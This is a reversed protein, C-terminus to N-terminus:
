YYFFFFTKKLDNYSHLQFSQIASTTAKVFCGECVLLFVEELRAKFGEDWILSVLLQPESSRHAKSSVAVRWWASGSCHEKERAVGPWDQFFRWCFQEAEYWTLTLPFCCSASFLSSSLAENHPAISLKNGLMNHLDTLDAPTPPWKRVMLLLNISFIRMLWWVGPPRPSPYGPPLRYWTCFRLVLLVRTEGRVKLLFGPGYSSTSTSVLCVLLLEQQMINM